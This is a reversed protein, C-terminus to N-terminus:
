HRKILFWSALAPLLVLAGLMNVLFMFTLLIGMDAQFKLPSFIWTAVGIALTIGTFLVGNGTITLTQYYAEQLPVGKDIISKFRSYIYIGYDVGIGVGLAVIPLTSVKLGIELVSMLAYALLSVLALPLIICLTARLSRFTVACLIIIASFVYILMPFQAAKIAENTAAHVGVNGTALRFKLDERGYEAQFSKVADVIGAITEAKHDSTFIMIPIVSCDGNLLGSDTPVYTVSQTLVDPIRSLVRWKLSGENWGSNIIKAIGPLGIVSQVGHVNTMDWEFRDITDMVDFDICGQPKTEVIVTLLDVGISFKDTIFASDQNYRSEPRLEPVGQHLDGIAVDTGKYFGFLALSVAVALIVLAVKPEAVRSFKKWLAFMQENRIHLKERYRDSFKVYSLLVPLLFLNTLIIVAVGLSATVAIEQIVQIKILLITIFGITDSILAIGGPVLLRRFSNKAADMSSEDKYIEAANASVMQVGHSVGIAFVLFPVLISMPDIGYGLLTLLGMQWTVAVLSCVLPLVTVKFSHTYWFVLLATILFAIGFFQIVRVAGDAINGIVMAFGIVHVKVDANEYKGRIKEEIEKSVRIYDLKKQTSPNVELLQASVMASSFDNSILRGVQGSKMINRRVIELHEPTVESPDTPYDAPIVNGAAIGRETVETYRVNPTFISKVRSRDVGELFFVDDTVNKLTQLFEPTLIDGDTPRVAILVRNAGGFEDRYKVFTKMYEHELPLLKSFSADIFLGRASYIMFLTVLVFFSIVLGRRNFIFNEINKIM